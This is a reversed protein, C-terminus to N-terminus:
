IQLYKSCMQTPSNHCTMDMKFSHIFLQKKKDNFISTLYQRKAFDYIADKLKVTYTKGCVQTRKM